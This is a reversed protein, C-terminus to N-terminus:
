FWFVFLLQGSLGQIEKGKEYSNPFPGLMEIGLHQLLLHETSTILRPGPIGWPLAVANDPVKEETATSSCPSSPPPGEVPITKPSEAWGQTRPILDQKWEGWGQRYITKRSKRKKQTKNKIWMVMIVNMWTTANMRRASSIEM